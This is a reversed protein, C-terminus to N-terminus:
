QTIWDIFSSAEFLSDIRGVPEGDEIVEYTGDDNRDFDFWRGTADWSGRSIEHALNVDAEFEDMRSAHTSGYLVSLM